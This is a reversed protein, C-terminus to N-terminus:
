LCLDNVILEGTTGIPYVKRTKYELELFCNDCINEDHIYHLGCFYCSCWDCMNLGYHELEYGCTRCHKYM